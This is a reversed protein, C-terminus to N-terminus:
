VHARGIKLWDCKYTRIEKKADRIHEWIRKKPNKTYGIYRIDNTIPDTLKYIYFM